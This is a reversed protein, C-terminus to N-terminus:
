NQSGKKALEKIVPQMLGDFNGSSLILVVDDPEAADVVEAVSNFARVDPHHIRAEALIEDLSAQDHTGSGQVPPRHAFVIDTDAFATRYQPLANRNRWTFTHPEFLVILRSDPFHLRMADIASRAKEHSSGFGEYVHITSAKPVKRDLRRTLGEFALIATQFQAFTVIKDGLLVAATALINEVNHRGLLTTEITGLPNGLELLTFSTV